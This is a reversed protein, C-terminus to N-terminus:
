MFLHHIHFSSALAPNGKNLHQNSNGNHADNGKEEVGQDGTRHIGVGLEFGM